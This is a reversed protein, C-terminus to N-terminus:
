SSREGRRTRHAPRPGSNAGYWRSGRHAARCEGGSGGHEGWPSAEGRGERASTSIRAEHVHPPSDAMAKSDCQTTLEDDGMLCDPFDRNYLLIIGRRKMKAIQHEPATPSPNGQPGLISVQRRTRTRAGSRKTCRSRPHAPAAQLVQDLGLYANWAGGAREGREGRAGTGHPVTAEGCGVARV